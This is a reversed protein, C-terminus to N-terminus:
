SGRQILIGVSTASFGALAMKLHPEERYPPVDVFHDIPGDGADYNMAIANHGKARVRQLLEEIDRKRFLVTAEHDVTLFDSSVNYETTHVAWGGPKLCDLSREIFALGHEISGLHELACASWCFDFDVFEEPVNNMDCPRFEVNRDFVEDPCVGPKRLAAKGAAHQNTEIWGTEFAEEAALDTALIRCEQSAFFAALPEVGVGFGLGRRGEAIVGREWLAQCIFVFEWLKRHYRLSEGLRETWYGFYPQSFDSQRCVAGTPFARTAPAKGTLALAKHWLEREPTSLAALLLRTERAHVALQAEIRDIKADMAKMDNPMRYLRRVFRDARSALRSLPGDRGKSSTM